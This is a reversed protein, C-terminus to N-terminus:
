KACCCDNCIYRTNKDVKECEWPYIDCVSKCEFCRVRIKEAAERSAGPEGPRPSIKAKRLKQDIKAHKPPLTVNYESPNFKNKFRTGEMSVTRCTTHRRGDRGTFSEGQRRVRRTPAIYGDAEDEAAEDEEIPPPAIKPKKPTKAAATRARKPKAKDEAELVKIQEALERAKDYLGTMTASVIQVKLKEIKPNKTKAM